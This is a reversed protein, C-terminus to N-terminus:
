RASRSPSQSPFDLPRELAGPSETAANTGGFPHSAALRGRNPSRASDILQGGPPVGDSTAEFVVITARKADASNECLVVDGDRDHRVNKAFWAVCIAAASKKTTGVAVHRSRNTSTIRACWRRRTRCTATVSWGVAAQVAWFSRSANGHFSAGRYTTCSRSAAKKAQVVVAAAIPMSERWGACRRRRSADRVLQERVRVLADGPLHQAAQDPLRTRRPAGASSPPTAALQIGARRAALTSGISASLGSYAIPLERIVM